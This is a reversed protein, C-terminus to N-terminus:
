IGCPVAPSITISAPAPKPDIVDPPFTEKRPPNLSVAVPPFTRSEEPLPTAKELPLMWTEVGDSTKPFVPRIAKCVPSDAALPLEPPILM